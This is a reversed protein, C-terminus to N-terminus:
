GNPADELGDVRAPARRHFADQLARSRTTLAAIGAFLAMGALIDVVYHYRLYVCAFPISAVIPLLVWFLRRAHRHAGWLLTLSVGTHLSPFCDRPVRTRDMLQAKLRAGLYADLSVDFHDLFLPGQAPVITYFVYGVALALTVAFGIERFPAPDEKAFIAALVLPFLPLYFVYCACLWESLPRSIIAECLVRPDHGFFMARDIRALTADQDGFLGRGIVPGMLGYFYLLAVLPIWDRLTSLTQRWGGRVMGITDLRGHIKIHQASAIWFLAFPVLILLVVQTWGYLALFVESAGGEWGDVPHLSPLAPLVLPIACLFLVLFIFHLRRQSLVADPWPTRRYAVFSRSCFVLLVVIAFDSRPVSKQNLTFDGAAVLRLAAYLLFLALVWEGPRLLAGLRSPRTPAAPRM